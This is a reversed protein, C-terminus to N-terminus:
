LYITKTILRERIELIDFTDRVKMATNGVRTYTSSNEYAEIFEAGTILIRGRSSVLIGCRFTPDLTKNPSFVSHIYRVSYMHPFLEFTCVFTHKSPLNYFSQRFLPM